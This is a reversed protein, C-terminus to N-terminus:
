GGAPAASGLVAARDPPLRLRGHSVAVDEASAALVVEGAAVPFSQLNTGLNAVVTVRDDGATRDYALLGPALGERLRLDGTHLSPRDRRLHLLTRYWELMSWPRGQQAAVNRTRHDPNVALWPEAEPTCFGAHVTGDWQMPGRVEDRNLREPLRKSLPEPIWSLSRAIPDYAERLPRYTNRMGLEQGMYITPVGRVTLLVTALVRAKEEDGGLRDISRSRDHNEVVYTPQDPAPFAHEFRAIVDHFWAADYRFVLFEFLFALHLGDGGPGGTFAQLVEAPGFVEGLLVREPEYADCVARLERALEVNDPTNETFDHPYLRPPAVRSFTPRLPNDRFDPDKMISGFMDLRFGDVGRDLWFRVADFLAAKVEPNRWNLDPQCPLFSAFYWQGREEGWQWGTKVEIAAKWNNPPRRGGPGRGDRWLYWDAKPNDRSARSELFWPHQDSSHNLVLDFMVRLGREHAAGILAEADALTGYEPAVDCYDSVDYGWDVQPSTFFPSVWVTGVGLDVLHDLREVIGPLDGIGDGNSDAFSRPYVQYITTEHWWPRDATVGLRYFASTLRATTAKTATASTASSPAQVDPDPEDSEGPGSDREDPEPGTEAGSGAEAM